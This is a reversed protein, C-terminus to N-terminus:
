GQEHLWQDQGEYHVNVPANKRSLQLTLHLHLQLQALPHDGCLQGHRSLPHVPPCTEGSKRSDPECCPSCGGMLGLAQKLFRTRSVGLEKEANTPIDLCLLRRHEGWQQGYPEQHAVLSIHRPPVLHFADDTPVVSYQCPRICNLFEPASGWLKMSCPLWTKNGAFFGQSNCQYWTWDEGRGGQMRTWDEGRGGQM